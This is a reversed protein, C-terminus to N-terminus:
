EEMSDMVKSFHACSEEYERPRVKRWLAFYPDKLYEGTKCGLPELSNWDIRRMGRVVKRVQEDLAGEMVAREDGRVPLACPVVEGDAKGVRWAQGATKCRYELVKRSLMCIDRSSGITGEKIGKKNALYETLVLEPHALVEVGADLRAMSAEFLGLEDPYAGAIRERSLPFTSEEGEEWVGTLLGYWDGGGEVPRRIWVKAGADVLGVTFTVPQGDGYGCARRVFREYVEELGRVYASVEGARARFRRMTGGTSEDGPTWSLEVIKRMSWDFWKSKSFALLVNMGAQIEEVAESFSGNEEPFRRVDDFAEYTGDLIRKFLSLAIRFAVFLATAKTVARVRNKHLARKAPNWLNLLIYQDGENDTELDIELDHFFTEAARFYANNFFFTIVEPFNLAEDKLLRQHRAEIEPLCHPLLHTLLLRTFESPTHHRPFSSPNLLEMLQAGFAHDTPKVDNKAVIINLTHPNSYDLYAAAADSPSSAFFLAFTNALFLDPDTIRTRNSWQRHKPAPNPKPTFSTLFHLKTLFHYTATAEASDIPPKTDINLTQPSNIDNTGNEKTDKFMPALQEQQNSM